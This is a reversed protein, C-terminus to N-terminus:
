GIGVVPITIEGNDDAKLPWFAPIAIQQGDIFARDVDFLRRIRAPFDPNARPRYQASRDTVAVQCLQLTFGVVPKIWYELM